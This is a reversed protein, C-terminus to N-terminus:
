RPTLYFQKVNSSPLFLHSMSFQITLFLVTQDNLMTYAFSQNISNNTISVQFWKIPHLRILLMFYFWWWWWWWTASGAHIERVKERWGDKDDMAGPLDELSYRTDAYLQQINTRAPRGTKTREHSPTWLLIDSIHESKSRRCHGAHRTLRVQITKTIPPLHGYLQTKKQTPHKRWSKNLVAWLRTYNDVLKKM